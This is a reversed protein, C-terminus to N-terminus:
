SIFVLSDTDVTVALVSRDLYRNGRECSTEPAFLCSHCAAAHVTVGSQGPQHEACLPDSGCLQADLLASQIHRGLENSTGLEILGGLTGESDSAATYLLVGAMAEVGANPDPDRAYIRERLSAASYGCELVFQRMLAHAFTHILVYRMGPFDEEAPEIRRARRWATHAEHFQKERQQVEPKNLWEKILEEKFQIFIGEGRVETAPVWAPADRSLRMHQPANANLAQGLEGPSDIRTFGILARVERLREVLVVQEIQEQWLRPVPESRLQFDKSSPANQPHTFQQWERSKLDSPDAQPKNAANRHKEIAKFIESDSYALFSKFKEPSFKKVLALESESSLMQLSAWNDQVLQELKGEHDPISLATLTNGFWINSAGLSIARAQQKCGQPDFDRLHPRRGRCLPMQARGEEGFAESLSRNKKCTDCFVMIEHTEGSSGFESLRLLAQCNTPGRHVFEIWPFDDLHGHECAVLFRAPVVSPNKAKDCHRHTYSTREPHYINERPTFLGSSLPALRSCSPCLMWRPFLAVPVGDISYDTPKYDNPMPPPACLEKVQAGLLAQVASLLREESIRPANLVNWEDLGMVLVSLHPLDVLSGVGYSFTVQSPRVDGVRLGKGM